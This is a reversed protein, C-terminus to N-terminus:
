GVSEGYRGGSATAVYRGDPSFSVANVAHITISGPLRQAAIAIGCERRITGVRPPSMAGM